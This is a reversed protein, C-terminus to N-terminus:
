AGSPATPPLRAITASTSPTVAPASATAASIPSSPRGCDPDRERRYRRRGQASRAVTRSVRRARTRAISASTWARPRDSGAVRVAFGAREPSSIPTSAVDNLSIVDAAAGAFPDILLLRHWSRFRFQARQEGRHGVRHEHQGIAGTGRACRRAVAGRERQIPNRQDAHV